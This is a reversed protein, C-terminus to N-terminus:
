VNESAKASNRESLLRVFALTYQAFSTLSFLISFGIIWLGLIHFSLTFSIFGLDINYPYHAILMVMGICAFITKVKGGEGASIVLGEAAAIGRLGTVALERSLALMFLWGPIRNPTFQMLAVLVVLFYLKDTLPDLFKGFTTVLNHKRAYYGDLIDTIAGLAYILAAWFCTKPNEIGPWILLLVLPLVALRLLTLINPLNWM